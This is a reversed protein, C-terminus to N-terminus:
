GREIRLLRGNASYEPIHNNSGWVTTLVALVHALGHMPLLLDGEVELWESELDIRTASPFIAGLKIKAM